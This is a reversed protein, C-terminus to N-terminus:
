IGDDEDGNWIVSDLTDGSVYPNIVLMNRIRHLQERTNAGGFLRTSQGGTLGLLRVAEQRVHRVEGDPLTVGSFTQRLVGDVEEQEDLDEDLVTPVAGPHADLVVHGALCGGTGRQRSSM